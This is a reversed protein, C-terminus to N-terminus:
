TIAVPQILRTVVHHPEPALVMGEAEVGGLVQGALQEGVLAEQGRSAAALLLAGDRCLTQRLPEIGDIAVAEDLPVRRGVVRDVVDAQEGEILQRSIGPHALAGLREDIPQHQETGQM